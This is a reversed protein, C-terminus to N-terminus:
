SASASTRTSTEAWAKNHRIRSVHSTSMGYLRSIAVNSYGQEIAKRVGRVTDASFKVLAGRRINEAKTVPELHDPNVCARVRCTHDLELGYPVAGHAREYMVRYALKSGIRAYGNEISGTWMWCGNAQKIYLSDINKKGYHGHCYARPDGKKVGLRAYTKPWVGADTGCGCWCKM